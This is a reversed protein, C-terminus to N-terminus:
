NVLKGYYSTLENALEDIDYSSKDILLNTRNELSYRYDFKRLADCWEDIVNINLCRYRSSICLDSSLTNSAFIRTLLCCKTLLM